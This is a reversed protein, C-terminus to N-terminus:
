RLDSTRLRAAALGAPVVTWLLLAAIMPGVGHPAPHLGAAATIATDIDILRTVGHSPEELAPIFTTGVYGVMLPVAVSRAATGLVFGVTVTLLAITAATPMAALVGVGAAGSAGKSALLATVTAWGLAGFLVTAGAAWGLISVYSAALWRLRRPAVSLVLGAWGSRFPAAGAATGIALWLLTFGISAVRFRGEVLDATASGDLSKFRFLAVVL